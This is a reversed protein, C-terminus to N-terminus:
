GSSIEYLIHMEQRAKQTANKTNTTNLKDCHRGFPLSSQAINM